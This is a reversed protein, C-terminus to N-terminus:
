VRVAQFRVFQVTIGQAFILVESENAGMDWM